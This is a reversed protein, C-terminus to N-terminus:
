NASRSIERWAQTGGIESLVLTLSDNATASFDAGGALLMVATGGGGATNNKVTPTSTFLLTVKAGNQWSATTIANIQVAGTIEFVNGDSGLTLDNASAVDAGQADLVRKYHTVAGTTSVALGRVGAAILEINTASTYITAAYATAGFFTGASDELGAYFQGGTNQLLMYQANTNGSTARFMGGVGTSSIINTARIEGTADLAKSPTMGIGVNGTAGAVTLVSTWSASNQRSQLRFDINSAGDYITALRFGYGSGSTSAKLEIGNSAADTQGSEITVYGKNTAESGPIGIGAVHLLSIPAATGIGVSGGSPELIL